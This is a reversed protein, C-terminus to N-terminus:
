ILGRLTAPFGPIDRVYVDGLEGQPLYPSSVLCFARAFPNNLSKEPTQYLKLVQWTWGDASLTFHPNGVKVTKSYPNKM